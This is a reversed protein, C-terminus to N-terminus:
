GQEILLEYRPMSAAVTLLSERLIIYLYIIYVMHIHITLIVITLIIIYAANRIYTYIICM